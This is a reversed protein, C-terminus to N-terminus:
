QAQWAFCVTNSHSTKARKGFSSPPAPSSSFVIQRNVHTHPYTHPFSFFFPNVNFKVMKPHTTNSKKKVEGSEPTAIRHSDTALFKSLPLHTQREECVCMGMCIWADTWGNSSTHRHKNNNKKLNYGSTTQLDAKKQDLNM